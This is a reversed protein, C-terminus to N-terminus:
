ASAARVAALLLDPPCPKVLVRIVGIATAREAVAAEGFGTLAIIPIRATPANAKLRTCLEIGDMRPLGVDTIIVDPLIANAKEWGEFGDSAQVTAYGFMELAQAYLDCTDHHDDILLVVPRRAPDAPPSEMAGM